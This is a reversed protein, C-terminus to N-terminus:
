VRASSQRILRVPHFRGSENLITAAMARFGHACMEEQAFGLVRLAANVTNESM